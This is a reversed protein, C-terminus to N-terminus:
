LNIVVRKNKMLRKWAPLNRPQSLHQRVCSVFLSEKGVCMIARGQCESTNEVYLPPFCGTIRKYSVGIYGTNERLGPHIRALLLQVDTAELLMNGVPLAGLGCHPLFSRQLMGRVEALAM